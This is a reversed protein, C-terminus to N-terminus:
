RGVKEGISWDFQREYYKKEALQLLAYAVRRAADADLHVFLRNLRYESQQCESDKWLNVEQLNLYIPRGGPNPALTLDVAAGGGCPLREFFEGQRQSMTEGALCAVEDADHCEQELRAIVEPSVDNEKKRVEVLQTHLDNARKHWKREIREARLHKEHQDVDQIRSGSLLRKM